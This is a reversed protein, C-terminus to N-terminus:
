EDTKFKLDTKADDDALLTKSRENQKKKMKTISVLLDFLVWNTM